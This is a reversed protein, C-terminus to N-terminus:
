VTQEMSDNNMTNEEYMTENEFMVQEATETDDYLFELGDSREEVATGEMRIGFVEGRIRYM